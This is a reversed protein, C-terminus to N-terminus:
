EKEKKEEKKAKDEVVKKTTKKEPLKEGTRESLIKRLQAKQDETLLSLVERTEQKKMQSLQDNLVKMKTYFSNKIEQYKKRQEDSAGIKKWNAPLGFKKTPVEQKKDGSQGTGVVFALVLLVCGGLGTLRFM